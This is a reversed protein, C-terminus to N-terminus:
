VSKGWVVRTRDSLAQEPGAFRVRGDYPLSEEAPALVPLLAGRQGGQGYHRLARDIDEPPSLFDSVFVLQASRPLPLAPPLNDAAPQGAQVLTAIKTLTARSASPRLGSGLLAVHGGGRM